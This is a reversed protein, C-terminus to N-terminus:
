KVEVQTFHVIVLYSLYDFFNKFWITQLTIKNICPRTTRFFVITVYIRVPQIFYWIIFFFLIKNASEFEDTTEESTGWCLLSSDFLPAINLFGNKVGSFSLLRFMWLGILTPLFINLQVWHSLVNVRLLLWCLRIWVPLFGWLHSRQVQDNVSLLSRTLCLRMWVPSFGYLHSNHLLDNVSLPLRILCLRVCVPSFGYLHSRQSLDNISLLGRTLCLRIWM